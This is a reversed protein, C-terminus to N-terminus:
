IMESFVAESSLPCLEDEEGTRKPHTYNSTPLPSVSLRYVRQPPNLLARCARPLRQDESLVTETNRHPLSSVRGWLCTLHPPIPTLTPTRLPCLLSCDYM